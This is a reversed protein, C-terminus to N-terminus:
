YHIGKSKLHFNIFVETLSEETLQYNRVKESDMGHRYLKNKLNYVDVNKEIGKQYTTVIEKKIQKKVIREIEKEPLEKMLDTVFGKLKVEITFKTEKGSGSLKIHAKPKQIEVMGIMEGHYRISVPTNSTKPEIWRLGVIEDFSMWQKYKGESIPFVGNVKVTEKHMKDKEEKKVWDGTTFSLSPLLATGGPDKYTSVFSYMRIPEIYSFVKYTDNPKYLITYLPPLQFFGSTGLIKEIPEKTGFMWPTYRFEGNRQISQQVKQIGNELVSKSFIIAGIHGWNIPQQSTRYLNNVAEAITEGSGKGLFLPASEGQKEGEHKAVNVFDLMQVYLKYQGDVYDIGITSAYNVEGIEKEDWCGSTIALILICIWIYKCLKM